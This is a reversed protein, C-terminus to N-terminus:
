WHCHGKQQCSNTYKKSFIDLRSAAPWKITKRSCFFSKAQPLTAIKAVTILTYKEVLRHRFNFLILLTKNYNKTEKGISYMPWINQATTLTYHFTLKAVLHDILNDKCLNVLFNFSLCKGEMPKGVLLNQHNKRFSLFSLM